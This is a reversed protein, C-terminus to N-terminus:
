TQDYIRIEEKLITDKIRPKIQKYEILDVSRGVKDAMEEQIGIIEYLSYGSPIDAVVDIDSHSGFDDRVVSGFLGARCIRYKQLVPLLRQQIDQIRPAM